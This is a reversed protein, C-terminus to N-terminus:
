RQRRSPMVILVAVIAAALVLLATVPLLDSTPEGAEAAMATDPLPLSVVLCGDVEDPTRVHFGISAPDGVLALPLTIALRQGDVAHELEPLHLTDMAGWMLVIQDGSMLGAIGYEALWSSRCGDLAGDTDVWVVPSMNQEALAEAWGAEAFEIELVVTRSSTVTASVAVIDPSADGTPDTLRDAALAVSAPGFVLILACTFAVVSRQLRGGM